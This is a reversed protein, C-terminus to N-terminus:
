ARAARGAVDATGHEVPRGGCGSGSSSSRGCRRRTSTAPPRRTGTSSAATSRPGAVTRPRRPTPSWSTRTCCRIAPARPATGSRRRSSARAGAAPDRGSAAGRGARRASSTAWRRARGGGRARAVVARAVDPEAIGFLISVSKPARFTLDFGAVASSSRPRGCCCGSSPDRGDLLRRARRASRARSGSRRRARERGVRRRGRGRGRLLGRPGARGPRRLLRGAGPRRRAQRDVDDQGEPRRSPRKPLRIADFERVQAAAASRTPRIPAWAIYVSVVLAVAGCTM